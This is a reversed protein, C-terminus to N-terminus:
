SSAAGPVSVSWINGTWTQEAPSAGTPALLIGAAAVALFFPKM